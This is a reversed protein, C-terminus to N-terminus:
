RLFVKSARLPPRSCTRVRLDSALNTEARRGTSALWRIAQCQKWPRHVTMNWAGAPPIPCLKSSIPLCRVSNPSTQCTSTPMQCSACWDISSLNDECVSQAVHRRFAKDSTQQRKHVVLVRHDQIVGSHKHVRQGRRRRAGRCCVSETAPKQSTSRYAASASRALSYISTYKHNGPTTLTKM